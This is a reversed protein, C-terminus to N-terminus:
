TYSPTSGTSASVDSFNKGFVRGFFLSVPNGRSSTRRCTFRVTDARAEDAGSLSTFQRSVDDWVGLEIDEQPVVVVPSGAVMNAQAAAQALTRAGSPGDPVALAGAMAGADAATQAETRALCLYGFDVAFAVMGLLVVALVATM